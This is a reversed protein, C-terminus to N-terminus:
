YLLCKSSQWVKLEFMEYIFLLLNIDHIKKKQEFFFFFSVLKYVQDMVCAKVKLNIFLNRNGWNFNLLVSGIREILAWYHYGQMWICCQGIILIWMHMVNIKGLFFLCACRFMISLLVFIDRRSLMGLLLLINWSWNNHCGVKM